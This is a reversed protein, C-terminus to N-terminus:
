EDQILKSKISHYHKSCQKSVLGCSLICEDICSHNSPKYKEICSSNRTM